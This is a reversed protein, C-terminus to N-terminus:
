VRTRVAPYLFVNNSGKYILLQKYKNGFADEFDFFITNGSYEEIEIFVPSLTFNLEFRLVYDKPLIINAIVHPLKLKHDEPFNHTIELKQLYNERITISFNLNRDQESKSYNIDGLELIPLYSNIFKMQELSTIKQQEKLTKRQLLLTIVLGVSAILVGIAQIWEPFKELDFECALFNLNM